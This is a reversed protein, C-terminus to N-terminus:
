GRLVEAPTKRGRKTNDFDGDFSVLTYNYKEAVAYQYADDFDLRFEQSVAGLRKLEHSKLSLVIIGDIVLDELFSDFLKHKQLKFLIIGISHLSLDSIFIEELRTKQFFSRVTEVKEQELLGELFVNTDVLYV